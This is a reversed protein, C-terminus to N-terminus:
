GASTFSIPSYTLVVVFLFSFIEKKKQKKKFKIFRKKFTYLPKLAVVVAIRFTIINVDSSLM